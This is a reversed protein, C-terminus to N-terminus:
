SWTGPRLSWYQVLSPQLPIMLPFAVVCVLRFTPLPAVPALGIVQHDFALYSVPLVISVALPKDLNSRFIVVKRVDLTAM